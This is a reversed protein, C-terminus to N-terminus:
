ALAGGTAAHIKEALARDEGGRRYLARLVEIPVLPAHGTTEMIYGAALAWGDLQFSSLPPQTCRCLWPDATDCGCDLLPMRAAADSRRHWCVPGHSREVSLPSSLGRQCRQCRIATNEATTTNQRPRGQKGTPGGREIPQM